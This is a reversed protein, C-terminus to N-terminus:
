TKFEILKAKLAEREAILMQNEQMLKENILKTNSLKQEITQIMSKENNQSFDSISSDVDSHSM